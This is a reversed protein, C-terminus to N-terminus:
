GKERSLGERRFKGNEWEGRVCADSGAVWVLMPVSGLFVGPRAGVRSLRKVRSDFVVTVRAASFVVGAAPAGTAFAVASGPSTSLTWVMDDM